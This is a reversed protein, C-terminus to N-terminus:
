NILYRSTSKKSNSVRKKLEEIVTHPSIGLVRSIDRIGSGNLTMKVIQEKVGELRGNYNYDMIFTEKECDPDQCIFREKGNSTKGYRVVDIGQCSPCHITDLVM